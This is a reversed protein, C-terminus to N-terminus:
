LHYSRLMDPRKEPVSSIASGGGASRDPLQIGRLLPSRHALRHLCFGASVTLPRPAQRHRARFGESFHHGTLWAICAFNRPFNYATPSGPKFDRPSTTVPSGFSSPLIGRFSYATPSGPPAPSSIGRLLPSRHALRHLCFGESFQSRDPLRARARFGESFHHGALWAISAFDTQFMYATTFLM